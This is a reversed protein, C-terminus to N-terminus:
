KWNDVVWPDKCKEPNPDGHFVCICCEIRPTVNEINKLVRNGKLGGPAYERSQRVEWKWSLVWSDPFFFGRQKKTADHLWDQDGFFRRQVDKPDKAYEDWVHKLQGTKFRVVSSNCKDWSPRMARTFDRVVCWVDPQYDFLKDINGAIVM